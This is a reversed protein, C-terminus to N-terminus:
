KKARLAMQYSFLLAMIRDSQNDFWYFLNSNPFYSVEEPEFHRYEVFEDCNKNIADCFDCFGWVNVNNFVKLKKPLFRFHRINHPTNVLHKEQKSFFDIAKLYIKARQKPTLKM